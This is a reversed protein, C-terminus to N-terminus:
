PGTLGRLVVIERLKREDDLRLLVVFSEKVWNPPKLDYEVRCVIEGREGAPYYSSMGDKGISNDDMFRYIEKEPTGVPLTSLLPSPKSELAIDNAIHFYRRLRLEAESQQRSACGAILAVFCIVLCLKM